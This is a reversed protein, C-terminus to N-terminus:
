VLMCANARTCTQVRVLTRVYVVCGGVRGGIRGYARMDVCRRAWRGARGGSISDLDVCAYMDAHTCVYLCAHISTSTCIGWPTPIPGTDPSPVHAIM